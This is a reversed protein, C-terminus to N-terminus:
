RKRPRRPPPHAKVWDSPRLWEAVTSKDGYGQCWNMIDKPQYGPSTSGIELSLRSVKGSEFRFEVTTDDTQRVETIEGRVLEMGGTKQNTTPLGITTAEALTQRKFAPSLQYYRGRHIGFHLHAPYRGNEESQDAGIAGIPQGREVKDGVKVKRDKALHVYFSCVHTLGDEAPTLEHEIVIVNGLNWHKRQKADIWTPSFDSYRVVGDAVARVETGGPLWVDEALHWTGAFVSRSRTPILRGFNGRGRLGVQYRDCPWDFATKTAAAKTAQGQGQGQSQDQGQRQGRDQAAVRACVCLWGPLIAM